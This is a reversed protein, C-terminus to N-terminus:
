QVSLWRDLWERNTDIMSPHWDHCWDLEILRKEGPLAEFIPRVSAPRCAPDKLGLRIQTPQHVRKAHYATDFYGLTHLVTETGAPISDAFDSLEKLPYRYVSGTLTTRIDGLFPMDACVAKSIRSNAATAIALGGGQSMGMIGIRDEDVELQAQLVRLAILCEQTLRRMVFTEPTAAGEAFYGRERVYHEQHFAEHGFFNFNFSVYGPRTGYENPLLSERGYPNVWLFAPAKRVGEPIAIWGELVRGELGEFRLVEIKFGPLSHDATDSRWYNLRM